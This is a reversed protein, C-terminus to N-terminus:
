RQGASRESQLKALEARGRDTIYWVPAVDSPIVLNELEMTKLFKATTEANPMMGGPKAAESLAWIRDDPMRWLAPDYTSEAM